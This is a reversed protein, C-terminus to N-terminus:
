AVQWPCRIARVSPQNCASGPEGFALHWFTSRGCSFGALSGQPADWFTKLVRLGIRALGQADGPVCLPVDLDNFRQASCSVLRCESTFSPTEGGARTPARIKTETDFAKALTQGRWCILPELMEERIPFPLLIRFIESLWRTGHTTQTLWINEETRQKGKYSFFHPHSASMFCFSQLLTQFTMLASRQLSAAVKSVPLSWFLIAQHTLVTNGVSIAQVNKDSFCKM